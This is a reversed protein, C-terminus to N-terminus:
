ENYSKLDILNVNKSLYDFCKSLGTQCDKEEFREKHNLVDKKYKAFLDKVNVDTYPPKMGKIKTIEPKYIRHSSNGFNLRGYKHFDEITYNIKAEGTKTKIFNITYQYRWANSTFFFQQKIKHGQLNFCNCSERFSIEDSM